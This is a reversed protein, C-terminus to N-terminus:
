KCYQNCEKLMEKCYKMEEKKKVKVDKLAQRLESRSYPRARYISELNKASQNVLIKCEKNEAKCEKMCNFAFSSTSLTLALIAFTVKM